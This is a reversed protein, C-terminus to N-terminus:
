GGFRSLDLIEKTIPSLARGGGGMSRGGGFDMAAPRIAPRYGGAPGIAPRTGAPAFRSRASAGPSQLAVRVGLERLEQRVRANTLQIWQPDSLQGSYEAALEASVRTVFKAYPVLDENAAYFADRVTERRRQETVAQNQQATEQQGKLEENLNYAELLTQTLSFASTRLMTELHQAGEPTLNMARAAAEDIRFPLINKFQLRQAIATARPDSTAQPQARGQSVQRLAEHYRAERAEERIQAEAMAARLGALEVDRPDLDEDDLDEGQPEEWRQRAGAGRQEVGEAGQELDEGEPEVEEAAQGGRARLQEARELAEDEFNPLRHARRIPTVVRARGEARAAARRPREAEPRFNGLDSPVDPAGSREALGTLEDVGAQVNEIAAGADTAMAVAGRPRRAM